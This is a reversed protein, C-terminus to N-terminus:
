KLEAYYNVTAFVEDYESYYNIQHLGNKLIRYIHYTPSLLNWFDRFFTRSDINCTGFEFQIAKIKGAKIANGAGLLANLENGEIDLKLLDIYAINNEILFDDIKKVKVMEFDSLKEDTGFARELPFLSAIHSGPQDSYLAADANQNGFGIQNLFINDKSGHASQLKKFTAASPEFCWVQLKAIPLHRILEACYDGQNAGADFIIYTRKETYKAALMDMLAIEGGFEITCGNGYNMGLLSLNRTLNFIKQFRKKGTLHKKFLKLFYAKM